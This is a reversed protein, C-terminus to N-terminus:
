GKLGIKKERLAMGLQQSRQWNSPSGKPQRPTLTTNKMTELYPQTKTQWEPAANTVGQQYRQPGVTAANRTYKASGAKAVGTGYADRAIAEQTGAAWNSKAGSAGALWREGAGEVGSKYDGLAAGANRAFKAASASADKVIIAM